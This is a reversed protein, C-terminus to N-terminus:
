PPSNRYRMVHGAMGYSLFYVSGSESGMEYNLHYKIIFTDGYIYVDCGFYSSVDAPSIKAEEQWVGMQGVFYTPWGVVMVRKMVLILGM